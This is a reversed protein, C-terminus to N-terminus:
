RVKLGDLFRGQYRDVEKLPVWINDATLGKVRTQCTVRTTLPDRCKLELQYQEEVKKFADGALPENQVPGIEIRGKEQDVKQVPFNLRKLEQIIKEWVTDCPIDSIILALGTEKPAHQCTPGLALFSALVVLLLIFRMEAM